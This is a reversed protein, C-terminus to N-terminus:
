IQQQTPNLEKAKQIDALKSALESLKKVRKQICKSIKDALQSPQDKEVEPFNLKSLIKSREEGDDQSEDDDDDSEDNPDGPCCGVYGLVSYYIVHYLKAGSKLAREGSRAKMGVAWFSSTQVWRLCSPM